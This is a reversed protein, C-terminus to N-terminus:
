ISSKFLPAVPGVPGVPAVPTVPGVPGVPAAASAGVIVIPVTIVPSGPLSAAAVIM